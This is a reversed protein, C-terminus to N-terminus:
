VSSRIAMMFFVDIVLHLVLDPARACARVCARVCWYSQCQGGYDTRSMVHEIAETFVTV